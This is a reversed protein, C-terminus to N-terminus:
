NKKPIEDLLSKKKEQQETKVEIEKRKQEIQKNLSNKREKQKPDVEVNGEPKSGEM